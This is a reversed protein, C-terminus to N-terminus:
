KTYNIPDIMNNIKFAELREICTPCTGCSQEGANYCSRTFQYPVGLKIGTRVIDSKKMSIYPAEIEVPHWLTSFVVTKQLSELFEPRCDPYISFDGAHAAYMVKSLGRSAAIGVAVSMLIMNRNPVVTIKAIDETYHCNPVSIDPNTLASSNIHAFIPKVNIVDHKVTTNHEALYEIMLIASSIEASHRQGYDFTIAEVYNGQNLLDFLLTASDM